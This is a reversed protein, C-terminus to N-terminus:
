LRYLVKESVSPILPSNEITVQNAVNDIYVRKMATENTNKVVNSPSSAVPEFKSRKPTNGMLGETPSISEVNGESSCNKKGNRKKKM